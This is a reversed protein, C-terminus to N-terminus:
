NGLFSNKFVQFSFVTGKEETSEFFVKGRLYREGFLKASYTGIGRGETGKTSFSRQFLQLQVDQPMVGPNHVSFTVSDQTEAAWFAVEKRWPPAELANKVLNGLIRRLISHDTVLDCSPVERLILSSHTAVDHNSYLAHLEKMLHRVNVMGLDPRFEGKEAALLNRHYSIEDILRESLIVMWERYERDKEPPFAKSALAAAVGRMGGATNMVDHFFIRELLAKRKEAAVDKLFCVTVQAEGVTVPTATVELDLSIPNAGRLTIRCERTVRKGTRTSDIIARVAGCTACHAGTGCGEEGEISFLCEVAEGPRLGILEEMKEPGLANRLSANMMLIQREENLVMVYDPVAELISTFFTDAEVARRSASFREATARGTPAFRTRPMLSPTGTM